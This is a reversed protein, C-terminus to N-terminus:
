LKEIKIAEVNLRFQTSYSSLLLWQKQSLQIGFLQKFKNQICFVQGFNINM